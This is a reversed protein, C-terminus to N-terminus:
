RGPTAPIRIPTPGATAMGIAPGTPRVPQRHFFQRCFSRHHAIHEDNPGLDYADSWPQVVDYHQLALLTAMPWDPRRFIIDADIWAIYQAEPTRHVGINLLNEKNWVPNQRAGPHPPRGGHRLPSRGRRVRV